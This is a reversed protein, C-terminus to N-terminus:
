PSAPTSVMTPSWASWGREDRANALYDLGTNQPHYAHPSGDGDIAMGSVYLCSTEGDIGYISTQGIRIRESLKESM